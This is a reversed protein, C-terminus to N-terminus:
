GWLSQVQDVTEDDESDSFGNFDAFQAMVSPSDDDLAVSVRKDVVPKQAHAPEPEEQDDDMGDDDGEARMMEEFAGFLLSVPADAKKLMEMQQQAAAAKDEDQEFKFDDEDDEEYEEDDEDVELYEIEDEEAQAKEGHDMDIEDSVRLQESQPHQQNVAEEEADLDISNRKKASMQPTAAVAAEDTMMTQQADKQGENEDSGWEEEDGSSSSASKNSINLRLPQTNVLKKTKTKKTEIKSTETTIKTGNMTTKTKTKTKTKTETKTTIIHYDDDDEDDESSSKDLKSKSPKFKLTSPKSKAPKSPKTNTTKDKAEDHEPVSRSTKMSPLKPKQRINPTKPRRPTKPKSPSKSVISKADGLLQRTEEQLENLIELTQRELEVLEHQKQKLQQNTIVNDDDNENDDSQVKSPPEELIPLEAANSFSLPDSVSATIGPSTPTCTRPTTCADRLRPKKLTKGDFRSRYDNLGGLSSTKKHLSKVNKAYRKMKLTLRRNKDKEEKLQEQLEQSYAFIEEKQTTLDTLQHTLLVNKDRRQQASLKHFELESWMNNRERRYEDLEERLAMNEDALTNVQQTLNENKKKEAMLHKDQDRLMEGLQTMSQQLQRMQEILTNKEHEVASVSHRPSQHPSVPPPLFTNNASRRPGYGVTESKSQVLMVNSSRVFASSRSKILKPYPLSHVGTDLPPSSPAMPVSLPAPSVSRSPFFKKDVDSDYDYEDDVMAMFQSPDAFDVADEESEPLVSIARNDDDVEHLQDDSHTGISNSRVPVTRQRLLDLNRRKYHYDHHDDSSKRFRTRKSSPGTGSVSGGRDRKAKHPTINVLSIKGNKGYSFSLSKKHSRPSDVGSPAQHNLKPLHINNL